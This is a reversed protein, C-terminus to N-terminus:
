NNAPVAQCRRAALRHSSFAKHADLGTISLTLNEREFERQTEYLKSMVTHDV